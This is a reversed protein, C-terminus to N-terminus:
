GAVVAEAWDPQLKATAKERETEFQEFTCRNLLHHRAEICIFMLGKASDVSRVGAVGHTPCTPVVDTQDLLEACTWTFMTLRCTKSLTFYNM